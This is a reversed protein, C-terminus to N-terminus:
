KFQMFIYEGLIYNSQQCSPPPQGNHSSNQTQQFIKSDTINELIHETQLNLNKQLDNSLQAVFSIGKNLIPSGGKSFTDDKSFSGTPKSDLEVKNVRFNSQLPPINSYESSMSPSQIIKIVPINKQDKQSNFMGKKTSSNIASYKILEPFATRFRRNGASIRKQYGRNLTKSQKKITFIELNLEPMLENGGCKRDEACVVHRKTYSNRPMKEHFSASAESHKITKPTNLRQTQLISKKDTLQIKNSEQRKKSVYQYRQDKALPNKKAAASGPVADMPLDDNPSKKIHIPKLSTRNTYINTPLIGDHMQKQLYCGFDGNPKASKKSKMRSVKRVDNTVFGQKTFNPLNEKPHLDRQKLDTSSYSQTYPCEAVSVLDLKQDRGNCNYYQSRDRLQHGCRTDAISPSSLKNHFLRTMSQRLRASLGKGFNRM